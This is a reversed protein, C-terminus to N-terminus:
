PRREGPWATAGDMGADDLIPNAPNLAQRRYQEALLFHDLAAPQLRVGPSVPSSGIASVEGALEDCASRLRQCSITAPSLVRARDLLKLLASSEAPSPSRALRQQVSLLLLDHLQRRLAKQEATAAAPDFGGAAGAAAHRQVQTWLRRLFRSMGEVGAENWELSQDPPAAFMSFLRVTDAGYRAIMEESYRRSDWPM